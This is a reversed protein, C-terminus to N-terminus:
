FPRTLHHMDIGAFPRMGVEKFGLREYLRYANDNGPACLLGFQKGSDSHSRIAAELLQSAVGQGRYQPFVAMSDLYIEDPSTEDDFDEEKLDYGMIDSAETIFTRRLEHLRTGDYSVIGGAVNGKHDEAILTNLYSYQSNDMACLRTFLTDLLPLREIGGALAECGESHLAMQIIQSIVPSDGKVAPRINIM